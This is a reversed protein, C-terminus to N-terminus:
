YTVNVGRAQLAPIHEQISQTSLPNSELYVNDGAGLGGNNVLPGIDVVQNYQLNLTELKTLGELVSIDSIQNNHLHLYQLETLNAAVSLDSMGSSMLILAELEVM